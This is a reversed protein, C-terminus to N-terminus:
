LTMSRRVHRRSRHRDGSTGGLSRFLLLLQPCLQPAWIVFYDPEDEIMYSSGFELSSITRITCLKAYSSFSLHSASEGGGFDGDRCRTHYEDKQSVDGYAGFAWLNAENFIEDSLLPNQCALWTVWDDSVSEPCSWFNRSVADTEDGAFLDGWDLRGVDAERSYPNQIEDYTTEAAWDNSVAEPATIADQTMLPSPHQSEKTSQDQESGEQGLSQVWPHTKPMWEFGHRSASVATSLSRGFGGYGTGSYGSLPSGASHGPPFCSPSSSFGGGNLPHGNESM